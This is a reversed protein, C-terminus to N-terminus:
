QNGREDQKDLHVYVIEQERVPPLQHTQGPAAPPVNVQFSGGGQSLALLERHRLDERRERQEALEGNYSNIAVVAWIMSAIWIFPLAIGLTLFGLSVALVTLVAGALGSAYFLGLPGFLFALFFGLGASKESKM